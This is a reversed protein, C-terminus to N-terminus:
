AGCRRFRRGRVLREGNILIEGATQPILGLMMKFLTTKGAGNHGILGHMEGAGMIELDVGDVARVSGYHRSVGQVQVVPRTPM